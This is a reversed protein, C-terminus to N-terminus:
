HKSKSLLTLLTLLETTPSQKCSSLVTLFNAIDHTIADNSLHIKLCHVSPSLVSHSSDPTTFRHDKIFVQLLGDSFHHPMLHPILDKQVSINNIADVFIRLDGWYSHSIESDAITFHNQHLSISLGKRPKLTMKFLTFFLKLILYYANVLMVLM